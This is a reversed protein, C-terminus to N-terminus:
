QPTQASELERFAESGERLTEEDPTEPALLDNGQADFVRFSRETRGDATKEVVLMIQLAGDTASNFVVEKVDSALYEPEFSPTEATDYLFADRREGVIRVERTGDESVYVEKDTEPATPAAPDTPVPEAPPTPDPVLVVGGRADRYHYYRGNDYVYVVTV